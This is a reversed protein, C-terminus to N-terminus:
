ICIEKLHFTSFSLISKSHYFGLYCLNLSQFKKFNPASSVAGKLQESLNEFLFFEM